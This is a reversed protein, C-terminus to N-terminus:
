PGGRRARPKAVVIEIRRNQSRGEISSNGAVPDEPGKGQARVLDRRVGKGVLFSRVAEARRQSLLTNEEYSGVNDTYGFVTIPEDKSQLAQAIEDLKAMANPRLNWKAMPFLIEAQLTVVMGREDDKVPAIKSITARADRPNGGELTGLRQAQDRSVQQQDQPQMETRGLAQQTQRLNGQARQLDALRTSDLQSKAAEESQEARIERARAEAILAMRDAILALDSTMASDPDSQFAAEARQLAAEARHVDTPNVLAAPGNRVRYFDDRADILSKPPLGQRSCAAPALTFVVTTLLVARNWNM